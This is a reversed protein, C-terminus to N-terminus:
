HRYIGGCTLNGDPENEKVLKTALWVYSHM